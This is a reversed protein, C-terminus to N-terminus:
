SILKHSEQSRTSVVYHFDCTLFYSVFTNVEDRLGQGNQWTQLYNICMNVSKNTAVPPEARRIGYLFLVSFSRVHIIDFRM